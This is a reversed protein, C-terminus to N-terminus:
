EFRRDSGVIIKLKAPAVTIEAPTKMIIQEDTLIAVQEEAQSGIKIKTFPLVTEEIKKKGFISSKIPTIVAELVGDVPSSNAIGSAFNYLTIKSKETIPSIKFDKYEITVNGNEIQATNVFYYNNIKGLDIRKIIRSALVDCAMVKPPIGLIKAIEDDNNVPILGLAVDLDAVVNIVKAFTQANGIAVVTEVGEKVGDTIMEKMNKLISLRAIKGKIGLDTLRKEIKILLDAYKKDNLFSDYIYLYM